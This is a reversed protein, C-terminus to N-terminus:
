KQTNMVVISTLPTANDVDLEAFIALVFVSSNFFFVKKEKCNQQVNWLIARGDNSCSLIM